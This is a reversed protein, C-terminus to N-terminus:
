WSRRIVEGPRATTQQGQEVVVQGNVLVCDIGAPHQQPEEYTARDLIAEPDFVVLDAKYGKKVLGRGPLGLKQAPFGSAKWNAEELSLIGEDRVYRGLVRPYTGFSRPHPKGAALPGETALGLGDTGIMMAPHSLQLRVNDESMLFLIMMLDGLTRLLADLAWTPPDKGERAALEAVYHGVYDEKRSGSILIKDWEIEEVVAGEGAEWAGVIRRREWPLVLRKLIGLVGGEAAWKPLLAALYTSGALYPYMDASVDLGDAHARDLLALARSAKDWNEKGAAKFHSIQVAAGTRRGIEIAEGYADLLTEAEGRAHSFYLGQREGVPRVLGVLEETSTYSGPPYILGTSLGFAGSDLAEELLGQMQQMQEKSAPGAGYGMVASRIMGQGVLPVVNVSLQKAELSELFRDFTPMEDWPVRDMSPAIMKFARLTERRNKKTLPAPSLGCQGTVVTTIGQHVLSEAQPAFLLSLDAHSHMDIFGPTVVRGRADIVRAANTGGLPGIDVLRDGAIAIDAQYGPKNSGDIVHGNLILVDLM